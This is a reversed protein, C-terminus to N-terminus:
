RLSELRPSRLRRWSARSCPQLPILAAAPLAIRLPRELWWTSDPGVCGSMLNKVIEGRQEVM